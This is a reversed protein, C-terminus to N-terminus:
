ARRASKVSSVPSRAGPITIVEGRLTTITRGSGAVEAPDVQGVATSNGQDYVYVDIGRVTQRGPSPTPTLSASVNTVLQESTEINETYDLYGAKSLVVTHSGATISVIRPTVGYYTGDITIQAGIPQSRLFASSTKVPREKYGLRALVTAMRGRSVTVTTVYDPYGKLKLTVTRVGPQVNSIIAHTIGSYIGDIYIEAGSPYSQVMISGTEARAGQGIIVTNTPVDVGDVIMTFKVRGNEIGSFTFPMTFDDPGGNKTGHLQITSLVSSSARGPVTGEVRITPFSGTISVDGQYGTWTGRHSTGSLTLEQTGKGPVGNKVVVNNRVTNQNTIRFDAHELNIPLSLGIINWDFARNPTDAYVEWSLTSVSGDPLGHVTVTITDGPDVALPEINVQVASVTMASGIFLSFILILLFRHKIM